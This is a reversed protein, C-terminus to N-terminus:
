QQRFDKGCYPCVQADMPIPRGCGPCMRGTQQPQMPQGPQGAQAQQLNDPLSFFAIIMLIEAIFIIFYGFVIIVLIAGIFYVMGTTKFMDVRTHAAISDFSKKLYLASIVNIIYFIIFGAICLMLMAGLNNIFATPDTVGGSSIAAFFSFGGLALFIVVFLVVVSIINLLFSILYNSFIKGDNVADAIYKVAILVLIFGVISLFPTVFGGILALIAGIGGLVKANGINGM